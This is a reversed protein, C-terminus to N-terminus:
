IPNKPPFSGTKLSCNALCKNAAETIAAGPAITIELISYGCVSSILVSTFTEWSFIPEFIKSAMALPVVSPKFNAAFTAAINNTKTAKIAM